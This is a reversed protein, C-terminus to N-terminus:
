KKLIRNSLLFSTRGDDAPVCSDLTALIGLVEISEGNMQKLGNMSMGIEQASLEIMCASAAIKDTLVTLLNKIERSQDDFNQLGYLSNGVCQATFVEKNQKLKKTLSSLLRLVEPYDANMNQLVYLGMIISQLSLSEKASIVDTLVSIFQRVEATHSMKGRLSYLSMGIEQSNIADCDLDEELAATM